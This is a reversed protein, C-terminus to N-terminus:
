ARYLLFGFNDEFFLVIHVPGPFSSRNLEPRLVADGKLCKVGGGLYGNRIFHEFHELTIEVMITFLSSRARVPLCTRITSRLYYM